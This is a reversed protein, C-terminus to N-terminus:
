INFFASTVTPLATAANQENWFILASRRHHPVLLHGDDSAVTARGRIFEIDPKLPV